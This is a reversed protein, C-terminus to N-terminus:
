LIVVEVKVEKQSLGITGEGEQPTTYTVKNVDCAIGNNDMCTAYFYWPSGWAATVAFSNSWKNPTEKLLEATIDAPAKDSWQDTENFSKVYFADYSGGPYVWVYYTTTRAEKDDLAMVLIEDIKALSEQGGATKFPETFAETTFTGDPKMGIVYAIYETGEELGELEYTTGMQAEDLLYRSMFEKMTMADAYEPHESKWEQLREEWFGNMHERLGEQKDEMNEYESKRVANLMFTERSEIPTATVHVRAGEQSINDIFLDYSTESMQAEPTSVEHKLLNIDEESTIPTGDPNCSFVMLYYEDNPILRGFEVYESQQHLYKTFNGGNAEALTNIAEADTMGEFYEKLELVVAFHENRTACVTASYSVDTINEDTVSFENKPEKDTAISKYAVDSVMTIDSALSVAFAHFVSEPALNQFSERDVTEGQTTIEEVFEADDLDPYQERLVKFYAELKDKLANPDSNCFSKFAEEDLVNYYYRVEDDDPTIRLSFGSSTVDEARIDFKTGLFETETTSFEESYAKTLAEGSPTLGFAYAIYDTEPILSSFIVDETGTKLNRRIVDELHEGSSAASKGLEDLVYEILMDADKVNDEYIDEEMLGCYYTMEANEPTIKVTLKDSAASVLTLTFGQEPKQPEGNKNCGAAMLMGGIALLGSVLYSLNTKM